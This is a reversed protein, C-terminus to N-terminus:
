QSYDRRYSKLLKVWATLSSARRNISSGELGKACKLVFERSSYPDFDALSKVGAWQMWAWGFDSSEVRNALFEYQADKSSKQALVRGATTVTNDNNM